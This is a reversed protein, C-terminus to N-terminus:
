EKDRIVQYDEYGKRVGQVLYDFQGNKGNAERVVIRQTGKEVVYLQLWEGAPTLQVTLGEDSTVLNFDEPLNIVAEGDVLKATGRIYTGAEPGELCSYVIEKAPDTPDVEVFSKTGTVTLDGNVALTPDTITVVNTGKNWFKLSRTAYDTWILWQESVPCDASYLELYANGVGGAKVVLNANGDSELLCTDENASGHVDLKATPSTTGIGLKGEESLTMEMLNNGEGGIYWNFRSGGNDNNCDASFLVPGAGFLRLPQASNDGPAPEGSYIYGRVTVDGAVDLNTAPDDTGIGVNGDAHDISPTGQSPGFWDDDGSKSQGVCMVCLIATMAIVLFVAISKSRRSYM